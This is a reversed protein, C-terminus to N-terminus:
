AEDSWKRYLMEISKLIEQKEKKLAANEAKLASIIADKEILLNIQETIPTAAETIGTEGDPVAKKRGSKGTPIVEGTAEDLKGILTRKSRPQQKEKDWYSESEYVYTVGSRKDKHKIITM